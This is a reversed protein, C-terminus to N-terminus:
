CSLPIGDIRLLLPRRGRLEDGPLLRDKALTWVPPQHTRPLAIREVFLLITFSAILIGIQLQCLHVLPSITRIFVLRDHGSFHIGTYPLLLYETNLAYWVVTFSWICKAVPIVVLFYGWLRQRTMLLVHVLQSVETMLAISCMTVVFFWFNPANFSMSMHKRRARISPSRMCIHM